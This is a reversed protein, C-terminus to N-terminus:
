KDNGLREDLIAFINGIIIQESTDTTNYINYLKEIEELAELDKFISEYRDLLKRDMFITPFAKLRKGSELDKKVEEIQEKMYEKNTMILVM